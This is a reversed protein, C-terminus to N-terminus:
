YLSTLIHLTRGHPCDMLMAMTNAQKTDPIYRSLLIVDNLNVLEKTWVLCQLKFNM